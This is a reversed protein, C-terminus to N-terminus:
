WNHLRSGLLGRGVVSRNLAPSNAAPQGLQRRLPSTRMAAPEPAALTVMFSVNIRWTEISSEALQLSAPFLGTRRHPQLDVPV